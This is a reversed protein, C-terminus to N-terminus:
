ENGNLNCYSSPSSGARTRMLKLMAIVMSPVTLVLRRPAVGPELCEWDEENVTMPRFCASSKYHDAAAGGTCPIPLILAGRALAEAIYGREADGGGILIFIDSARCLQRNTDLEDEGAYVTEGVLHARFNTSLGYAERATGETDTEYWCSEPVVHYNGHNEVDRLDAREPHTRRATQWAKAFEMQVGPKGVTLLMLDALYPDIALMAAMQRVVEIQEQPVEGAILAVRRGRNPIGKAIRENAQWPSSTITGGPFYDRGDEHFLATQPPADEDDTIASMIRCEEGDLKMWQVSETRDAQLNSYAWTINGEPADGPLPPAHCAACVHHDHYKTEVEPVTYQNFSEL